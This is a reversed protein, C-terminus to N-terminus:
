GLFFKSSLVRAQEFLPANGPQRILARCSGRRAPTVSPPTHTLPGPAGSLTARRRAAVPRRGSRCCRPRSGRQPTDSDGHVDGAINPRPGRGSRCRGPPSWAAGARRGPQWPCRSRSESLADYHLPRRESAPETTRRMCHLRGEPQLLKRGGPVNYVRDLASHM